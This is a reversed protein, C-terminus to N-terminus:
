AENHHAPNDKDAVFVVFLHTTINLEMASGNWGWSEVTYTRTEYFGKGSGTSGMKFRVTNPGEPSASVPRLLAGPQNQKITGLTITGNQHGVVVGDKFIPISYAVM